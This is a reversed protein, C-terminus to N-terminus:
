GRFSEALVALMCRHDLPLSLVFENFVDRACKDDFADDESKYEDSSVDPEEVASVGETLHQPPRPEEHLQPVSSSSSRTSTQPALNLPLHVSMLKAVKM